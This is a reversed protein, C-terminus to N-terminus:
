LNLYCHFNLKSHFLEILKQSQEDSYVYFSKGTDEGGEGESDDTLPAGRADPPLAAIKRKMRKLYTSKHTMPLFKREALDMYKDDVQTILPLNEDSGAGAMKAGRIAAPVRVAREYSGVATLHQNCRSDTIVSTVGNGSSPTAM